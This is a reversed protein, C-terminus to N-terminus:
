FDPINEELGEESMRYLDIARYYGNGSSKRRIERLKQQQENTLLNKIRIALVLNTLKIDRELQTISELEASAREEDIREEGLLGTFSEMRRQLEWQWVTFKEQADHLWRIIESRQAESLDIATQNKMVLDPAFTHEQILDREKYQVVGLEQARAPLVM